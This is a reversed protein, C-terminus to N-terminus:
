TQARSSVGVGEFLIDVEVVEEQTVRRSGDDEQGRDVTDSAQMWEELEEPEVDDRNMGTELLSLSELSEVAELRRGGGDEECRVDCRSSEVDGGDRVDNMVLERARGIRVDMARSTGSTSAFGTERQLDDRGLLLVRLPHQHGTEAFTLM